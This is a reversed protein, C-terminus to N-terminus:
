IPRAIAFLLGNEQWLVVDVGSITKTIPTQKQGIDPITGHIRKQYRAQFLTTWVGDSTQYRLQAAPIGLILCPRAGTLRGQIQDMPKSTSLMFGLYSFKHSIKTLSDSKHQLDKHSLHNNIVDAVITQHTSYGTPLWVITLLLCASIFVISVMSKASYSLGQPKSEASISPELARLAALEETSLAINHHLDVIAKKLPKNM